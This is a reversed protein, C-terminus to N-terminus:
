WSVAPSQSNELNNRSILLFLSRLANRVRSVSKFGKWHCVLCVGRTEQRLTEKRVSRRLFCVTILVFFPFSVKEVAPGKSGGGGKKKKRKKKSKGTAGGAEGDGEGEAQKGSDEEDVGASSAGGVATDGGKVKGKGDTDVDKLEEILTNSDGM